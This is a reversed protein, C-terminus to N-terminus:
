HKSFDHHIYAYQLGCSDTGFITSILVDRDKLYWVDGYSTSNEPSFQSKGNKSIEFEDIEKYLAVLDKADETVYAWAISALRGDESFMYKLTGSHGLYDKSYTLTDGGYVSAYIEDSEGEISILKEADTDWLVSSFPCGTEESRQVGCASFLLAFFLIFVTITYLRIHRM